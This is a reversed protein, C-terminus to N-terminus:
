STKPIALSLAASVLPSLILVATQLRQYAGADKASERMSGIRRPSRSGGPRAANPWWGFTCRAIYDTVFVLAVRPAPFANPSGEAMEGWIEQIVDTLFRRDSRQDALFVVREIPFSDVVSQLEFLTGVNKQTLGSLDLCVLDVRALLLDVAERWFSGSCLESHVPYSGYRDRVWIRGAGIGRFSSWGKPEVRGRDRVLDSLFRERSSVFLAAVNGSRKARRYEAPTVSSASRLLHVYGFERWAGQIFTRMRPQNEFLRLYVIDLPRHGVVNRDPKVRRLKRRPKPRRPKVIRVELDPITAARPRSPQDTGPLFRALTTSNSLREIVRAIHWRRGNVIAAVAFLVTVLWTVAAAIFIQLDSIEVDLRWESPWAEGRYAVLAGVATLGILTLVSYVITAAARKPELYLVTRQRRAPRNM